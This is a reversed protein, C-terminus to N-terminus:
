WLRAAVGLSVTRGTLTHVDYRSADGQYGVEPENTLNRVQVRARVREGWLAYGAALDLTRRADVYRDQFAADELEDLFASRYSWALRLEVRGKQFYPILNYVLDAQRFLPLTDAREPVDMESDMAAVNVILGFGDFPSPLFLFLQQYAAEVGRVVGADANRDQRHQLEEFVRGEFVVDRQTVDREYIPGDLRKYFGGVSLLGGLPFYYEATLDLGVARTPRLAPNGEETEGEFRGPRVEGLSFSRSGALEEYDPRGIAHTWAARLHLRDVPRYVFHLSPLVDTYATRFTRANVSPVAAADADEPAELELLEFRQSRTRTHELRLGGLVQVRGLDVRGMLYGAYVAERNDSDGEIAERVTEAEDLVFFATHTRYAEFFDVFAEVDGHVFARSGGQVVGLAPLAFRDLGTAIAGPLYQEERDDIVKDRLRFAGGGQIFGAHPGLRADRRLDVSAAWTNETNTEFERDVDRLPYHAPDLTFAADEPELRFFYPSVDYVSALRAADAEATEFTADPRYRDLVGRTYTGAAEWTWPGSRREGGLTIAYLTENEEVLSLDLEASGETFRGTTPTQDVLDGAFGFEYESNLRAEDTHTYLGRLYLATRPSPRYDLNAVLSHRTRENDELQSELEEPVFFGNQAEWGDPDLISATFDRRSASGAVVAGLARRPGFRAGAVFSVQFPFAEDGFASQQDHVLGSFTGSAFPRERDFATLTRLNVTGGVANADLDPTPAKVVEVSAVMESPLLDLATARSEFTSALPRGDLVVNNLKPAIGRIVVFRGEGRDTEITVGPVRQAAEAVNLDPLKGIADASLVDVLRIAQRKRALARVQGERLGQVVVEGSSLTRSELALTHVVTQGGPVRLRVRGRRFGVFSATLTHEGAPLDRLELQGEENAAHGQRTAEVIVHAGPLPDGTAADVVEVLLSGRRAGSPNPVPVVLGGRLVRYTFGVQELAQAYAEEPLADTVRLTVKQDVPLLTSSFAFRVGSQKSIRRLAEALPVGDLHLTLRDPVRSVLAGPKGELVREGVGLLREPREAAQGYAATALLLLGATVSVVPMAHMPSM